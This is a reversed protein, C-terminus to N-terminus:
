KLVNEEVPEGFTKIPYAVMDKFEARKDGVTITDGVTPVKEIFLVGGKHFLVRYFAKFAIIIRM